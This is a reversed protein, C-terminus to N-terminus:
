CSKQRSCDRCIGYLMVQFGDIEHGELIQGIMGTMDPPAAELDIVASCHCCQFHLHPDVCGDYRAEAGQVGAVRIAQGTQQLIDLNRYVTGLSIRPMRRRVQKYLDSATPHAYSARLEELVVQRQRTNRRTCSSM